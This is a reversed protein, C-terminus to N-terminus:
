LVPLTGLVQIDELRVKHVQIILCSLLPLSSSSIRTPMREYWGDLWLFILQVSSPMWDGMNDIHEGHSEICLIQLKHLKGLSEFLILLREPPYSSPLIIDLARLETLYRLEEPDVDQTFHALTLEQLSTLNKYGVPLYTSECVYLWMLNRLQAVSTALEKGKGDIGLLDLTQLFLLKGIEMPIKRLNTNRLGLYRLHLLCGVCSLNLHGSEQLNCGELDLVRLVEFRSLPLMQNIAPSFITFSRVQSITNTVLQTNALEAKQVSLRRIKREFHTDVKIFDMISVFNEERALDCILDLMIDHVRCSASEGELDIGLPQIMSRNVLENFYSKGIEFLHDGQIFGEAIWRRILRRKGIIYDEPFISLYLLCTKLHSPLDYYSFSLIRRMEELNTDGKRIGSGISKLVVYWESIPKIQQNSALHSALTIIALPVGACKKLINMSVEQFESPCMNDVPFIRKYFLRQSDGDSLPKMNYIMDDNYSCCERSVSVNRTTTIVRSGCKSGMLAYRITKWASVDWIDDIVIFYRKGWLSEQLQDILQKVDLTAGTLSMYKKKDVEFLLDKLVKQLDLSRSVSVFATCSFDSQVKDYISKALTTKGLGGFGVISLIKPQKSVDGTLCLKGILEDRTNEIGVTREKDDYLAVLLPDVVTIRKAATLNAFSGDAKYREHRAAVDQVQEKINKIATAIQRRAKGKKFLSKMKSVLEKFGEINADTDSGGEVRVLLSDVIDETDYSLERVDGAWLKVEEYLQDRPVEAVRRLAARMSELERSFAGVDRKVSSQMKYEKLLEGLKPLLSGMAGLTLDM